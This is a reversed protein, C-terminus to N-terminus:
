TTRRACNLISWAARMLLLLRALLPFSPTLTGEKSASGGRYLPPREIRAPLSWRGEEKLHPLLSFLLGECPSIARGPFDIAFCDSPPAPSFHRGTLPRTFFNCCHFILRGWGQLSLSCAQFSCRYGGEVAARLGVHTGKWSLSLLCAQFTSQTGSQSSKPNGFRLRM